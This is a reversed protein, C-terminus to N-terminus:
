YTNRGLVIKFFGVDTSLTASRLLDWVKSIIESLNKLPQKTPYKAHDWQFETIYQAPNVLNRNTSHSFPFDISIGVVM